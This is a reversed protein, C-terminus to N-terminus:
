TKIKVIQINLALSVLQFVNEHPNKNQIMNKLTKKASNVILNKKTERMTSIYDKNQISYAIM